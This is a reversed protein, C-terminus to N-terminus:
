NANEDAVGDNSEHKPKMRDLDDVRIIKIGEETVAYHVLKKDARLTQLAKRTEDKNCGLFQALDAINITLGVKDQLWRFAQILRPSKLVIPKDCGKKLMTLETPLEEPQSASEQRKENDNEPLDDMIITFQINIQGSIRPPDKKKTM